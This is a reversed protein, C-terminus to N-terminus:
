KVIKWLFHLIAIQVLGYKNSNVVRGGGGFLIM